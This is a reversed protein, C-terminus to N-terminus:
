PREEMGRQCPKDKGDTRKARGTDGVRSVGLGSRRIAIDLGSPSIVSIALSRVFTVAPAVRFVRSASAGSMGVPHLWNCLNRCPGDVTPGVDAAVVAAPRAYLSLLSFPVVPQRVQPFVAGYM